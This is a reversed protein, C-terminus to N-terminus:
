FHKIEFYTSAMARVSYIFVTIFYKARSDKWFEQQNDSLFINYNGMAALMLMVFNTGDAGHWQREPRM